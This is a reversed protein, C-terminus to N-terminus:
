YCCVNSQMSRRLSPNMIIRNTWFTWNYVFQEDHFRWHFVNEITKQWFWKIKFVLIRRFTRNERNRLIKDSTKSSKNIRIFHLRTWIMTLNKLVETGCHTGFSVFNRNFSRKAYRIPDIWRRQSRLRTRHTFPFVVLFNFVLLFLNSRFRSSRIRKVKKSFSFRDFVNTTSIRSGNVDHQVFKSRFYTFNICLDHEFSNGFRQSLLRDSFVISFNFIKLSFLM